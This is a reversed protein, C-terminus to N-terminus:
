EEDGEQAASGELNDNLREVQAALESIGEILQDLQNTTRRDLTIKDMTMAEAM